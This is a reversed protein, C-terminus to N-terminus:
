LITGGEDSGRIRWKRGREENRGREEVHKRREGDNRPRVRNRGIMSLRGESEGDRWREM